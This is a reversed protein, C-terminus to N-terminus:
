RPLGAERAQKRRERRLTNQTNLVVQAQHLRGTLRWLAWEALGVGAVWSGGDILSKIAPDGQAVDFPERLAILSVAILAPLVYYTHGRLRWLVGREALEHWATLAAIAASGGCALHLLARHLIHLIMAGGCLGDLGCFDSLM